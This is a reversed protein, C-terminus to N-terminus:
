KKYYNNTKQFPSLISNSSFYQKNNAVTYNITTLVGFGTYNNPVGRRYFNASTTILRGGGM